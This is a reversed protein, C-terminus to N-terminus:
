VKVCEKTQNRDRIGKRYLYCFKNVFKLMRKNADALMKGRRVDGCKRFEKADYVPAIMFYLNSTEDPDYLLIDPHPISHFISKFLEDNEETDAGEMSICAGYTICDESAYLAGGEYGFSFQDYKEVHGSCSSVTKIGHQLLLTVADKIKIDVEFAYDGCDKCFYSTRTVVGEQSRDIMEDYGIVKAVQAHYTKLCLPCLYYKDEVVAEHMICHPPRKLPSAKFIYGM